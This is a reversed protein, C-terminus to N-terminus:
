IRGALLPQQQPQVPQQGAAKSTRMLFNAVGQSPETRYRPTGMINQYSSSQALATMPNIAAMRTAAVGAAVPANMMALGSIVAANYVDNSSGSPLRVFPGMIQPQIKAASGIVKLGDTLLEPNNDHIKGIVMPNILGTEPGTLASEVVHIKSLTRRADRFQPILNPDVKNVIAELSSEMSDAQSQAKQAKELSNVSSSSGYEKWYNRAEERKKGVKDILNETSKSISSIYDYVRSADAKQAKLAAYTLPSNPALGIEARAIDGAALTNKLTAEGAIVTKGGMREIAKTMVGPNTQVPDVVGGLEQWMRLANDTEAQQQQRLLAEQQSKSLKNTAAAKGLGTGVVAGGASIAAEKATPARGEDMLTKATTGALSSAVQKAGEKVVEKAGMGALRGIPTAGMVAAETAGGATPQRGYAYEKTLYGATAGLAAGIPISLGATPVSFLPFAGISGGLAAGSSEMGASMLTGAVGLAMEKAKSPQEEGMQALQANIQELEKQESVTLPM